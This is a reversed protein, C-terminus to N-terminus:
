FWLEEWFLSSSTKISAKWNIVLVRQINTIYIFIWSHISISVLNFSYLSSSASTGETPASASIVSGFSHLADLKESSIPPSVPTSPKLVHMYL